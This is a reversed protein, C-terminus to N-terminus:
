HGLSRRFRLLTNTYKIADVGCTLKIDPTREFSFSKVLLSIYTFYRILLATVAETRIPAHVACYQRYLPELRYCFPEKTATLM